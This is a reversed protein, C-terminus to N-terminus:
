EFKDGSDYDQDFDTNIVETSYRMDEFPMWLHWLNHEAGTQQGVTSVPLHSLWTSSLGM